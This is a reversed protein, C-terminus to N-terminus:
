NKLPVDIIVITGKGIRSDISFSGNLEDIRSHINKLGIGTGKNDALNFGKGNDEVILNLIQDQRTLEISIEKANAHKIINGVLEQVIRYLTIELSSDLRSDIGHSVINVKLKNTSELTNKIENLASILGFKSLIGSDLSHSINRIDDCAKDLLNNVTQFQEENKINEELSGFHLKVTALLSGMNDHLEGAIRKREKEQGEMMSNFNLLDQKNLLDIIKQRNIEEKQSALILAAKQKNKYNRRIIFLIILTLVLAVIVLTIILRQQKARAKQNQIEDKNQKLLQNKKETDYKEQMEAIQKTTRESFLIDDLDMTKQLYIVANRFDRLGIYSNAIGDYTRSIQSKLDLEQSLILCKQLYEIATIYDSSDLYIGGVLYLEHTIDIKTGLKEALDLSQFGFELAKNYKEWSLYVLAIAHLTHIQEKKNDSKDFLEHSLNLYELAKDYNGTEGNFTGLAYYAGALDEENGYEKRIVLAKDYYEKTKTFNKNYTHIKGIKIYCDAIRLKDDKEEYLKLSKIFFVLSLEYSGRDLHVIGQTYLSDAIYTSPKNVLNNDSIEGYVNNIGGFLYLFSIIILNITFQKNM